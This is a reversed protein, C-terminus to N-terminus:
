HSGAISERVAQDWRNMVRELSFRKLVDPARAALRKRETLNGM